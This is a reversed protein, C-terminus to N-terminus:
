TPSMAAVIITAESAVQSAANASSECGFANLLQIWFSFGMFGPAGAEAVETAEAVDVAAVRAVGAGVVAANALAREWSLTLFSM